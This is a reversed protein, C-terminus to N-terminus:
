RGRIDALLRKWDDGGTATSESTRTRPAPAPPQPTPQADRAAIAAASSLIPAQVKEPLLLQPSPQSSSRTAAPLGGCEMAKQRWHEALEVWRNRIEMDRASAAMQSCVAVHAEYVSLLSIMQWM